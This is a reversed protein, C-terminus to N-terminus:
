LLTVGTEKACDACYKDDNIKLKAKSDCVVCLHDFSKFIHPKVPKYYGYKQTNEIVPCDKLIM